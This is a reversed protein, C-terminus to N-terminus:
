SFDSTQHFELIYFIIFINKIYKEITIKFVNLIKPVLGLNHGGQHCPYMCFFFFGAVGQDSSDARQSCDM